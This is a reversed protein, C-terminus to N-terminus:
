KQPQPAQVVLDGVKVQVSDERFEFSEPNWNWEERITKVKTVYGPLGLFSRPADPDIARYTEFTRAVSFQQQIEIIEVRIKSRTLHGLLSKSDPDFVAVEPEQINFKMGTEVGDLAGKNIIVERSNLIKAVKGEIGM